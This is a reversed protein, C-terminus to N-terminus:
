TLPRGDDHSPEMGWQRADWYRPFYATEPRSDRSQTGLLLTGQGEPWPEQLLEQEQAQAQVATDPWSPEEVEDQPESPVVREQDGVKTPLVLRPSPAASSPAASSPDEATMPLVMLQAPAEVWSLPAQGPDPEM